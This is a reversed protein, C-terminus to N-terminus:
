GCVLPTNLTDRYDKEEEGCFVECGGVGEWMHVCWGGVYCCTCCATLSGVEQMLNVCHLLYGFPVVWM